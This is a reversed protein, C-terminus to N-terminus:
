MTSKETQMSDKPMSSMFAVIEKETEMRVEEYNGGMIHISRKKHRLLPAIGKLNEKIDDENNM